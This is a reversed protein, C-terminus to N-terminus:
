WAVPHFTVVESKGGRVMTPMRKQERSMMAMRELGMAVEGELESEMKVEEEKRAMVQRKQM